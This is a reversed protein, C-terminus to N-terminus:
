LGMVNEWEAEGRNGKNRVRTVRVQRKGYEGCLIVMGQLKTEVGTEWETHPM